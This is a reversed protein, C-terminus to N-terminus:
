GKCMAYIDYVVEKEIQIGSDKVFEDYLEDHERKSFPPSLKLDSVNFPSTNGKIPNTCLYKLNFVGVGIFSTLSSVNKLSRLAGLFSTRVEDSGLLLNDMEDIIM